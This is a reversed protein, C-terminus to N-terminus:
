YTAIFFEDIEETGKNHHHALIKIEKFVPSCACRDCCVALHGSPSSHLSLFHERARANVCRETQGTYVRDCSLPILFVFGAACLVYRTRRSVVCRSGSLRVRNVAACYHSLRSPASFVVPVDFKEAVQKIEHSFTHIHPLVVPRFPMRRRERLGSLGRLVKLLSEVVGVAM